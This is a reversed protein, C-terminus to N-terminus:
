TCKVNQIQTGYSTIVDNVFKKYNPKWKTKNDQKFKQGEKPSKDNSNQKNNVSFNNHSFYTINKLM